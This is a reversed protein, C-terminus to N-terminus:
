SVRARAEFHWVSNAANYIECFAGYVLADADELSMGNVVEKNWMEACIHDNAIADYAIALRVGYLIAYQHAREEEDGM